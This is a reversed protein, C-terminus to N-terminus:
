RAAVIPRCSPALGTPVFEMRVKPTLTVLLTHSEVTPPLDGDEVFEQLAEAPVPRAIDDRRGHELLYSVYLEVAEKLMGRAEDLSDGCSAVDVECALAAWQDGEPHLLFTLPYAIRESKQRM